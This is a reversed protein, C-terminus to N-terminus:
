LLSSTGCLLLVETAEHAPIPSMGMPLRPSLTTQGDTIPASSPSEVDPLLYQSEELRGGPSIAIPRGVVSLRWPDASVALTVGCKNCRVNKGHLKRVLHLKAGCHPCDKKTPKETHLSPDAPVDLSYGCGPCPKTKGAEKESAYVVRGCNSCSISIAM